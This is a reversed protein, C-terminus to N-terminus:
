EVVMGLIRVLEAQRGTKTKAFLSDLHTKVTSPSVGLAKAIEKPPKGSYLQAAVKCEAPSLNFAAQWLSVDPQPGTPHHHAMVLYQATDGFAHLTEDPVLLAVSLAFVPACKPDVKIVQARREAPKATALKEMAQALERDVEVDDCLLLGGGGRFVNGDGVLKDFADNRATIRRARDVIAIPRHIRAIIAAGAASPSKFERGDSLKYAITDNGKDDPHAVVEAEVTSEIVQITPAAIQM